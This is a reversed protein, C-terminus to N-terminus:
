EHVYVTKSLIQRILKLMQQNNNKVFFKELQKLYNQKIGKNIIGKTKAYKQLSNSARNWGLLDRTRRHLAAQLLQKCSSSSAAAVTPMASAWTALIAVFVTINM